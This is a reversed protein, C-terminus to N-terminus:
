NSMKIHPFLKQIQVLFFFTGYYEQVESLSTRTAENYCCFGKPKTQIKTYSTYIKNYKM